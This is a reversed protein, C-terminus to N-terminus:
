PLPKLTAWCRKERNRTVYKQDKRGGTNTFYVTFHTTTTQDSRRTCSKQSGMSELRGPGETWPIRWTQLVQGM